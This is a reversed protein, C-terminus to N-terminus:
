EQTKVLPIEVRVSTPQDPASEIHFTGGVMDIRERMGLLGLRRRNKAALAGAVKFGRGNDKIEMRIIEDVCEITVEVASAGSHRAVNTLAEQIVRYLATLITGGSKEIDAFVKLSARVGTDEMFNKMYARVAPILGLDDLVTPRLERAFQHVIGVSKELLQQTNAIKQQMGQINGAAGQTLAAIHVNLGVLTQAIVDHLERSIRKREEEQAHLIQRSLERLQEQQLISQKLLRSQVGQTQQLEQEVAQRRVIEQRLKLNSATMLDLNRQAAEAKVRETINDCFCVVGFEGAPLTVRQIQWEYNEKLGTDRRRRAFAPSLYDEGSALTHRFRATMDAAVRRPWIEKMIESFDRDILPQVSGFLVLGKPNVQQLHFGAGVVFVGVPAQEILASFLAENRRLIDEAQKRVTIDRINCQIVSNGNEAYLNAVVEVEHHRGDRSELPLDDYRVVQDDQLRRFMARSAAEDELLGIEFLECGVLEDHSYDLLKTMFPNADTIKRSTPDLLLVGDHAAEFLRRYRIESIRLTEETHKRESIDVMAIRCTQRNFLSQAEITVSHHTGHECRLEFDGSQKDPGAFVQQLFDSFAARLPPVVFLRLSRGILRSREVGVLCAGTLNVLRIIGDTSLTFYSVPAFDYLDTYNDLALELEDRTHRLEANQMELEMQHVQLEHLLRRPDTAPHEAVPSDERQGILQDEARRRLQSSAAAPSSKPNM